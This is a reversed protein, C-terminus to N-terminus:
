IYLCLSTLFHSCFQLFPMQFFTMKLLKKLDQIYNAQVFLHSQPIDRFGAYFLTKEKHRVDMYLNRQVIDTLLGCVRRDAMTFRQSLYRMSAGIEGDPGGYQSM